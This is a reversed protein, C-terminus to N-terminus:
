FVFSRALIALQRYFDSVQSVPYSRQLLITAHVYVKLCVGRIESRFFCFGREEHIVDISHDLMQPGLPTRVTGVLVGKERGHLLLPPSRTNQVPSYSKRTRTHM